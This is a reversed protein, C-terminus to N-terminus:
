AISERPLSESDAEFLPPLASYGPGLIKAGSNTTVSRLFEGFPRGSRRCSLVKSGILVVEPELPRIAVAPDWCITHGNESIGFPVLKELLDASGDPALEAIDLDLTHRLMGRLERSRTALHDPHSPDWPFFLLLKGFLGYGFLSLFLSYSAPVRLGLVEADTAVTCSQTSGVVSIWSYVHVDSM